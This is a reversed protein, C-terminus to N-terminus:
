IQLLRSYRVQGRGTLGCSFGGESSVGSEAFLLSAIDSFVEIDLNVKFENKAPIRDTAILEAAQLSNRAWLTAAGGGARGESVAM